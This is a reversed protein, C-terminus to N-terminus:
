KWRAESCHLPSMPLAAWHLKNSLWFSKAANTTSAGGSEVVPVGLYM